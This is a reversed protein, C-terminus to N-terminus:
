LLQAVREENLLREVVAASEPSDGSRALSVVLYCGSPPLVGRPHTLIHGAPLARTRLGLSEQLYVGACEGAFFSSGSGTLVIEGGGGPIGGATLASTVRDAAARM